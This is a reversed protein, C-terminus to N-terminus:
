RKALHVLVCPGASGGYILVLRLCCVPWAEAQNVCLMCRTLLRAFQETVWRAALLRRATWHQAVAAHIFGAQGPRGDLRGPVQQQPVRCCGLDSAVAPSVCLSCPHNCCPQSVTSEAAEAQVACPEPPCCVVRCSGLWGELTSVTVPIPWSSARHM